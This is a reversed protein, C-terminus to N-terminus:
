LGRNREGGGDCGFCGNMVVVDIVFLGWVMSYVLDMSGRERDIM